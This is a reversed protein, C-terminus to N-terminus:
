KLTAMSATRNDLLLPSPLPVRHLHPQSRLRFFPRRSSFNRLSALTSFTELPAHHLQIIQPKVKAAPLVTTYQSIKDNEPRFGCFEGRARKPREFRFFCRGDQPKVCSGGLYSFKWLLPPSSLSLFSKSTFHPSGFSIKVYIVESGCGSLSGDTLIRLAFVV